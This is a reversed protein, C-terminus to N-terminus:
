LALFYEVAHRTLIENDYFWENGEINLGAIQNQRHRKMTHNYFFNTNRDGTLLWESKSKQFWFIEEQNLISEIGLRVEEERLRLRTNNNQELAKQMRELKM